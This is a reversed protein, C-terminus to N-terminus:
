AGTEVREVGELLDKSENMFDGEIQGVNWVIEGVWKRRCLWFEVKLLRLDERLRRFHTGPSRLFVELKYEDDERSVGVAFMGLPAKDRLCHLVLKSSRGDSLSEGLSKSFLINEQGGFGNELQV